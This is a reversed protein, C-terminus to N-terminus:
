RGLLRRGLEAWLTSTPINTIPPNQAKYGEYERKLDEYKSNALLLNQELTEVKNDLEGVRDHTAVLDSRIAQVERPRGQNDLIQPILTQDTIQPQQVIQQTITARNPIIVCYGTPNPFDSTPRVLGTWPDECLKNGIFRVWHSGRGGISSAPVEVIVNPINALVDSNNYGNVRRVQVGPFAEPIKSWIVLNYQFGKVAKLRNNVEVPTFGLINGIASITCGVQGITQEGFGVPINTWRSDRQNNNM